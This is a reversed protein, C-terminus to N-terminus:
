SAMLIMNFQDKVADWIKRGDDTTALFCAMQRNMSEEVVRAPTFGTITSWAIIAELASPKFNVSVRSLPGGTLLKYNQSGVMSEITTTLDPDKAVYELYVVVLAKIVSAETHGPYLKQIKAISDRVRVSMAPHLTFRHRAKRYHEGLWETFKAQTEGTWLAADCEKCRIGNARFTGGLFERTIRGQIHKRHECDEV